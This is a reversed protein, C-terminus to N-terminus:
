SEGSPVIPVDEGACGAVESAIGQDVQFYVDLLFM